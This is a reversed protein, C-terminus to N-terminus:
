NRLLSDTASLLWCLGYYLHKAIRKHKTIWNLNSMKWLSSVLSPVSKFISAQISYNHRCRIIGRRSSKGMRWCAEVLQPAIGHSFMSHPHTRVNPPWSLCNWRPFELSGTENDGGSQSTAWLEQHEKGPMMGEWQQEVSDSPWGPRGTGKTRTGMGSDMWPPRPCPHIKGNHTCWLFGWPIELATSYKFSVTHSLGRGSSHPCSHLM